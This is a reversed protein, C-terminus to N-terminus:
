FTLNIGLSMTRQQPYYGNTVSPAEPDINYKTLASLTLLNFGEVYIRFKEVKIRSLLKKPLSYGFQLTKLRIYNGSRYWFTSAYGNSVSRPTIELRPFEADPNEPTWSNIVLYEPANGLQYFPRSYSTAGHTGSAVGEVGNYVGQIGVEHGLGWSLLVDIDFGKWNANFNFSGTHTPITNKGVYAKDQALTITGDGNMDVYKIYGPYSPRTLDTASNDVEEQTQFLGDAVLGIKAGIQKGTLRQYDPTNESDGAYKLWRGYTYSWILKMSYFFEGVVNHHSLTLDFGRYDVENVNASSFYYGGMSPPYSGTVTSLKDYEYKYFADAEIGLMGNWLNVDIGINYNMCQAWTLNPNGLVSTSIGTQSAGGIVVSNTQPAMTNMWQFASVGSTATKGLGARLKLNTVWDANFWDEKNIRWAVSAGPLAVWRKNMGGFLYSGDYRFSAELFYKEAYNYNLRGVFGAVRSHSSSGLIEPTKNTGANTLNTIQSLEDLQIFDLGYGTAGMNRSRKERTEALVMAGVSHKGFVNNYSISSQTTFVSYNSTSESLIPTDGIVSYYGKTYSLAKTTKNPLTLLMVEMPTRLSKTMTYAADYGGQFKINLGKLWPADYQLAFNTQVYTTESRYYGSQDRSAMPTVPSGNTPVAVPYSKGDEDEVYLPVYPLAFSTQQAINLFSSPDASFFPRNRDEIRGALGVDLTWGEGIKADVNTRINIRDYDYNKVNGQEDLYGLSTFVHVKETGGSASVNHSHRFGTGFIIDYWNTNGWGDEGAKMKRVQEATFVEKDGQLVRAKNYWYAYSPADLWQQKEANQSIGVTGSYNIKVKQASGKKTTVVFAGCADLGYVAVASADKLVSVSEIENPDLGNFDAAERRIGDIVYIIGGQGRITLLANDSGPQGSSQVAAIGAVRSGVMNSVSMTPARLIEDKSVTSIAGTLSSRKQAGYGVVVVEDLFMTDDNLVVNVEVQDKVIFEYGAYGMMSVEVVDNKKAAVSYCGDIDTVSSASPNDKIFVVAGVLPNGSKDTVQGTLKREVGAEAEEPLIPTENKFYLAVMNDRVKWQLGTGSFVATLIDTVTGTTISTESVRIVTDAVKKSYSFAVGTQRTVEDAVKEASYKGESISLTFDTRELLSASPMEAYAAVSAFLSALLVVLTMLHPKKM